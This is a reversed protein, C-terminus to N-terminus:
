RPTLLSARCLSRSLFRQLRMERRRSFSRSYTTTDEIMANMSNTIEFPAVRQRWEAQAHRALRMAFPLKRSVGGDRLCVFYANKDARRAFASHPQASKEASPLSIHHRPRCKAPPRSVAPRGSPPISGIFDYSAEQMSGNDRLTCCRPSLTM